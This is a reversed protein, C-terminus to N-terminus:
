VRRKISYRPDGMITQYPQAGVGPRMVRIAFVQTANKAADAKDVAKVVFEYNGASAACVGSVIGSGNMSLGAPLAGATISFAFKGSGGTAELAVPTNNYANAVYSLGAKCLPLSAQTIKVPDTVCGWLVCGAWVAVWLLRMSMGVEECLFHVM